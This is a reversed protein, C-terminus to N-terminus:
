FRGGTRLCWGSTGCGQLAVDAAPQERTLWFVVGSGLVLVSGAGVLWRASNRQEILSDYRDYYGAQSGSRLDDEASRRALEFGVGVAIAAAGAGGIVWAWPRAPHHDGVRAASDQASAPADSAPPVSLNAGVAADRTLSVEIDLARDVRLDFTGASARHGGLQLRYQHQGPSLELSHPTVGVVRGDVELVAAPPSSYVTVQQVGRRQLAAELLAIRTRATDADSGRAEIRVFGRFWRLATAVDDMAEYSLAINFAFLPSHHERDACLFHDVAGRYDAQQYAEVGGRFLAKARTLAEAGEFGAPLLGLCAEAGRAPGGTLLGLVLGFGAISLRRLSRV